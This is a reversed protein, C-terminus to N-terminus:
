PTASVLPLLEFPGDIGKLYATRPSGFRFTGRQALDGVLRTLLVQGGEALAAVRAAVTVSHGYFDDVDRIADGSHLGVRLRVQEGRWGTKVAAQMEAACRLADTASPFAIIFGDGLGKVVHGRSRGASSDTLGRHWRLLETWQQDGLREAMATSGEIDTFMITVTGDPAAGVGLSPRDQSVAEAVAELSTTLEVGVMEENAVPVSCHLQVIPWHGEELHLVATMRVPFEDGDGLRALANVAGWGVSAEEFGESELISFAMGAAAAYEPLQAELALGADGAYWERPDTGILRRGPEASRFAAFADPDGSSIGRIFRRLVGEIEPSREM